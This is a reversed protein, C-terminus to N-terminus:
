LGHYFTSFPAEQSEEFSCMLYKMLINNFVSFPCFCYFNFSFIYNFYLKLKNSSVQFELTSETGKDIHEYYCQRANDPLEFTLEGSLVMSICCLLISITILHADM